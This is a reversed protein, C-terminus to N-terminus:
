QEAPAPGMSTNRRRHADYWGGMRLGLGKVTRAFLALTADHWLVNWPFSDSRIMILEDWYSSGEGERRAANEVAADVDVLFRGAARLIAERREQSQAWPSDPTQADVLMRDFRLLAHQRSAQRDDGLDLSAIFAEERAWFEDETLLGAPRDHGRALVEGEATPQGEGFALWASRVGLIEAAAEVFDRRPETGDKLYSNITPYTIGGPVRESVERQFGRFSFDSNEIAQRLRSGFTETTNTTM